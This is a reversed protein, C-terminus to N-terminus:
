HGHGGSNADGEIKAIKMMKAIAITM